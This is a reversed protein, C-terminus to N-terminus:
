SCIRCTLSYALHQNPQHLTNYTEKATLSRSLISDTNGYTDIDFQIQPFNPLRRDINTWFRAEMELKKLKLQSISSETTLNLTTIQKLTMKEINRTMLKKEEPNTNDELGRYLMKLREVIKQNLLVAISPVGSVKHLLDNPFGAKPLRLVRKLTKRLMIEWKALEGRAYDEYIPTTHDAIGYLSGTTVAILATRFQAFSHPCAFAARTLMNLSNRFKTLRLKAQATKWANRHVTQNTRLQIQKGLYKYNDTSPMQYNRRTRNRKNSFAVIATKNPGLNLTM